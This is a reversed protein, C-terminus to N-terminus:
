TKFIRLGISISGNMIPAPTVSSPVVWEIAVSIANNQGTAATNTVGSIPNTVSYEEYVDPTPNNLPQYKACNLYLPVPLEFCGCSPLDLELGGGLSVKGLLDIVAYGYPIFGDVALGSGNAGIIPPNATSSGAPFLSPSSTQWGLGPGTSIKCYTWIHIKLVTTGSSPNGYYPLRNNEWNFEWNIEKIYAGPKSVKYKDLTTGSGTFETEYNTACLPPAPLKNFLGQVSNPMTPENVGTSLPIGGFIFSAPNFDYANRSGGWGPHLFAFNRPQPTNQWSRGQQQNAFLISTSSGFFVEHEFDEAGEPGIINPGDPGTVGQIGTPGAPGQASSASGPPGTPGTVGIGTNGQPGTPGTDGPPGNGNSPGTPGTPGPCCCFDIRDNFYQNYSRYM